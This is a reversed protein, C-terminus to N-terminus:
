IKITDLDRKSRALYVVYGDILSNDQGVSVNTNRIDSLVSVPTDSPYAVHVLGGTEVAKNKAVTLQQKIRPSLRNNAVVQSSSLAMKQVDIQQRSEGNEIVESVKVAEPEAGVQKQWVEAQQNASQTFPDSALAHAALGGALAGVGAGIAAGQKGGIAAGILAGVLAGGGVGTATQQDKTMNACGSLVIAIMAIVAILKKM